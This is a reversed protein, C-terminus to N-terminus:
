WHKREGTRNLAALYSNYAALEEDYPDGAPSGQSSSGTAAANGGGTAPASAPATPARDPAPTGAVDDSATAARAALGARDEAIDHVLKWWMFVAYVCFFPWEVTYAWSLGNGALARHLQWWGLWLFGPVVAVITAHLGLARSSLWTRRM